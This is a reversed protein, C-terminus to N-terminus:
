KKKIKRRLETEKLYLPQERYADQKSRKGCLSWKTLLSARSSAYNTASLNHQAVQRMQGFITEIVSGNIDHPNVYYGPHRTLYDASFGKFGYYMIRQLDWTQMIIYNNHCM